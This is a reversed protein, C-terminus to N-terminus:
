KGELYFQECVTVFKEISDWITDDLTDLSYDPQDDDYCRGIFESEFELLPKHQLIEGDMVATGTILTEDKQITSMTILKNEFYHTGLSAKRLWEVPSDWKTELTLNITQSKGDYEFEKLEVWGIGGWNDVDPVLETLLDSSTTDYDFVFDDVQEPTITHVKIQSQTAEV